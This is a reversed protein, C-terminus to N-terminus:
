RFKTSFNNLQFQQFYEDLCVRPIRSVVVSPAHLSVNRSRKRLQAFTQHLYDSHLHIMESAYYGLAYVFSFYAFIERIIHRILFALEVYRIQFYLWCFSIRYKLNTIYIRFVIKRGLKNTIFISIEM